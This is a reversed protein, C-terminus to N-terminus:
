RERPLVTPRAAKPPWGASCSTSDATSNPSVTTPPGPQRSAVGSTTHSLGRHLPGTRINADVSLQDFVMEAVEDLVCGQQACATSCSRIAVSLRASAACLCDTLAMVISSRSHVRWHRPVPSGVAKEDEQNSDSDAAQGSGTPGTPPQTM